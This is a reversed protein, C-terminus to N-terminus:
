KKTGSLRSFFSGKSKSLKNKDDNKPADQKESHEMKAKLEAAKRMSSEWDKKKEEIFRM